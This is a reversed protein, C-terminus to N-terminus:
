CRESAQERLRPIRLMMGPELTRPDDLNNADAIPRWLRPDHYERAAVSSLTDGRRVTYRKEIDASKKDLRKVEEPDSRWQKFTCQLTARVPTGDALFLTFNQTLSQLTGQFFLGGNGWTLRCVPPRHIDGHKEIKSLNAVKDTYDRVTKGQAYTDFFLELTLTAPDANTHQSNVVDRQATKSDSWNVTQSISLQSPNFLAEIQQDFSGPSSTESHITLKTLEM